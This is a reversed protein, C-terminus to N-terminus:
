KFSSQIGGLTSVDKVTMLMLVVCINYKHIILVETDVEACRSTIKRKQACFLLVIHLYLAIYYDFLGVLVCRAMKM